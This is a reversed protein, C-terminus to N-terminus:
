KKCSVAKKKTSNVIYSFGFLIVVGIILLSFPLTKGSFSHSYNLIRLAIIILGIPCLTLMLVGKRELPKRDAWILLCTWALALTASLLGLSRFAPTYEYARGFFMFYLGPIADPFALLFAAKLDVIAGTWYSIRLWVVPDKM